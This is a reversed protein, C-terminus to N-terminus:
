PFVCGTCLAFDEVVNARHRRQDLYVRQHSGVQQQLDFDVGNQIHLKFNTIQLRLVRRASSRIVWLSTTASAVAPAATKSIVGVCRLAPRWAPQIPPRRGASRKQCRSCRNLARRGGHRYGARYPGTLSFTPKAESRERLLWGERRSIYALEVM